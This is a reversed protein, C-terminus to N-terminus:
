AMKEVWAVSVHETSVRPLGGGLGLDSTVKECTGVQATALSRVTLLSIRPREAVLANIVSM